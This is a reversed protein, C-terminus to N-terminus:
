CARFDMTLEVLLRPWVTQHLYQTVMRSQNLLYVWPSIGDDNSFGVTNSRPGSLVLAILRSWSM